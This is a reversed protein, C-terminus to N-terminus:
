RRSGPQSPAMNQGSPVGAAIVRLLRVASERIGLEGREWRAVTNSRVGVKVALESQTVGLRRRIRKVERGTM